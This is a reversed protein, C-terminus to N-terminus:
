FIDAYDSSDTTDVGVNVRLKLVSINKGEM